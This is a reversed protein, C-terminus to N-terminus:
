NGHIKEWPITVHYEETGPSPPKTNKYSMLILHIDIVTWRRAMTAQYM